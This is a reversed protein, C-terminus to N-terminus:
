DDDREPEALGAYLGAWANARKRRPVRRFLKDVKM